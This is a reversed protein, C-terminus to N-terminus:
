SGGAILAVALLACAVGASQVRSLREHLVFRALVVTSAPYLSALVAVLALLGHRTAVLYCANGSMDLVGAGVIPVWGQPQPLLSRRAVLAAAALSTSSVLRSVALPWMGSQAHTRGLFVYFLGVGIGSLLAEGLGPQLRWRWSAGAPAPPPAPPLDHEHLAASGPNAEGPAAGGSSVLPIAVLALAVGALAAPAPHEHLAMGVGFPIIAGILATVPSVLSMRGVALGRYLLSIGVAGTIGALAGDVVDSRAPHAAPLAAMVALLVFLGLAQSGVVVAFVSSRRSAIGGLFDAAGYTVGAILGLIVGM